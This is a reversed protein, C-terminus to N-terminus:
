LHRILFSLNVNNNNTVDVGSLGSRSSM